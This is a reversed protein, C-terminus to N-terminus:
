LTIENEDGSVSVRVSIDSISEGEIDTVSLDWQIFLQEIQL